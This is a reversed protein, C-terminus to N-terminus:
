RKKDIADKALLPNMAPNQVVRLEFGTMFVSNRLSDILIHAPDPDPKRQVTRRLRWLALGSGKALGFHGIAQCAYESCTPEFRCAPGLWPSVCFQYARIIAVCLMRM